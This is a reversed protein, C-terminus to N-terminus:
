FMMLPLVETPLPVIYDPGLVTAPATPSTLTAAAALSAETTATGNLPWYHSPNFGAVNTPRNGAALALIQANTPLFGNCWVWDGLIVPAFSTPTTAIRAGLQLTGLTNSVVPNTGTTNPGGITQDWIIKPSADAALMIGIYHWSDVTLGTSSVYNEVYATGDANSALIKSATPDYIIRARRQSTTGAEPISMDLIYVGNSPLYQFKIWGGVYQLTNTTRLGAAAADISFRQSRGNLRRASERNAPVEEFRISAVTASGTPIRYFKVWVSTTTAVFTLKSEPVTSVNDGVIDAGTSATGISRWMQASSNLDWSLAYRKGVETAIQQTVVGGVNDAAPSITVAKTTANITITATGSTTWTGILNVGGAM